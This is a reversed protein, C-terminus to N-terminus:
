LRVGEGWWLILACFKASLLVDCSVAPFRSHSWLPLSVRLWWEPSSSLAASILQRCNAPALPQETFFEFLGNGTETHRSRSQFQNTNTWSFHSPSLTSASAWASFGPTWKCSQQEASRTQARERPGCASLPSHPLKIASAPHSSYYCRSRVGRGGVWAAVSWKRRRQCGSSENRDREEGKPGSDRKKQKLAPERSCWEINM